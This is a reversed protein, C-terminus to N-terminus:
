DKIKLILKGKTQKRCCWFFNSKSKAMSSELSRADRLTSPKVEEKKNEKEYKNKIFWLVLIIIILLFLGVPVLIITLLIDMKIKQRDQKELKPVM